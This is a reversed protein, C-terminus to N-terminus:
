FCERIYFFHLFSAQGCLIATSVNTSLFIYIYNFHLKKRVNKRNFQQVLAVYKSVTIFVGTTISIYSTKSRYLHTMCFHLGDRKFKKWHSIVPFNFEWFCQICIVHRYPTVFWFLITISSFSWKLDLFYNRENGRKDLHKLFFFIIITSLTRAM